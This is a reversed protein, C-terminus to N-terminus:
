GHFETLAQKYYMSEKKRIKDKDFAGCAVARGRKGVMKAEDYNRIVSIMKESLAEINRFPVIYGTYGDIVLEPHGAIFYALVPIGCLMAEAVASGALPCIAVKAHATWNLVIDSPCAGLLVIRNKYESREIRQKVDSRLSGDGIIVLHYNPLHPAALDFADLVDLPFKIDVLRGVFLLYKYEAPNAPPNGPDFSNFAPDFNSIRLLSLREVPAGLALAHEFTCKDRGLVRTAHRLPLGLLWNTVIRAFVRFFPLRNLKRLYYTKGTLRRILEFNGIIDVIYPIKIFSSVLYAQLAPYDYKFARLVGIQEKVCYRTLKFIAFMERFIISTAVFGTKKIITVINPSNWTTLYFNEAIEIRTKLSNATDLVEIWEISPNRFSLLHEYGRNVAKELTFSRLILAKRNGKVSHNWIKRQKLIWPTTFLLGVLCLFFVFLFTIYDFPTAIKKLAKAAKQAKNIM